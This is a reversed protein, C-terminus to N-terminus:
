WSSGWRVACVASLLDFLGPCALLGARLLAVHPPPCAEDAIDVDLARATETEDM